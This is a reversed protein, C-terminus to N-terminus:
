GGSFLMISTFFIQRIFWFYLIIVIIIIGISLSKREDFLSVGVSYGCLLICYLIINVFYAPTSILDLPVPSISVEALIRCIGAALVIFICGTVPSIDRFGLAIIILPLINTCFVVLVYVLAFSVGMYNLLSGFLPSLVFCCFLAIGAIILKRFQDTKAKKKFETITDM